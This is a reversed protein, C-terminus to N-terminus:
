APRGRHRDRGGPWGRAKGAGAFSCGRRGPQVDRVAAPCTRDLLPCTEASQVIERAFEYVRDFLARYAPSLRYPVESPDREPFSTDKGLWNRVDARTRQIFHRALEIRERERSLSLDLNEFEPKLFALLSQFSEDVGSHPTATLMILHRDPKEALRSLLNHRQQQETNRGAPRACTHAEDVIVLDPCSRVFSDIRRESKAFDLSAVFCPFHEFVNTDGLPLRRELQAITGSRIVVADLQFKDALEKQWQDCLHPPCLVALRTSEGRDLLEKALLAGEITKGVGVDDAILLRVTDLRLGVLLPVFQYPRPRVSIRGLSRFPGAGARFSLRAANRLLQASTHDLATAPDPVPFKASQIPDLRELPLYIGTTELDSGLGRLLLIDPDVSPLVIWERGRCRVISGIPFQSATSM